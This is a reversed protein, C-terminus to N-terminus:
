PAQRWLYRDRAFDGNCGCQVPVRYRCSRNAGVDYDGDKSFQIINRRAEPRLPPGIPAGAAAICSEGYCYCVSGAGGIHCDSDQNCGERLAWCAYRTIKSGGPQTRMEQYATEGGPGTFTERSCATAMRGEFAAQMNLARQYDACDDSACHSAYFGLLVDWLPRWRTEIPENSEASAAIFADMNEETLGGPAVLRNRTEPTGGVIKRESRFDYDRAKQRTQNDYSSCGNFSWGPNAPTTGEVEVCAKVKLFKFNEEQLDSMSTWQQFRSGFDRKMAVHSGWRKIFSSYLSWHDENAPDITVPLSSFQDRFAKKLNEPGWCSSDEHVYLMGSVLSIDLLGTSVEKEATTEEGTVTRFTAGFALSAIPFSMNIGITKSVHSFFNEITRHEALTNSSQGIEEYRVCDGFQMNDFITIGGPPTGLLDSEPLYASLGILSCQGDPCNIEAIAPYGHASADPTTWAALALMASLARKM